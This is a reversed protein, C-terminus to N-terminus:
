DKLELAETVRAQFWAVAAEHSPSLFGRHYINAKLNRQVQESIWTDEETIRESHLIAADVGADEPEHLFIHEIQTRGVGEPKMHELMLVDRYVNVGWNPWVWSWVGGSGNAAERVECLAVEGYMQIDIRQTGEESALSPHVGERHYGDLYNEVYLKWNCAVPHRDRVIPSRYPQRGLREDLPRIVEALPTATMDLNVFVFGRWTEVRIPFLSLDAPKWGEAPGFGRAEKLKGDYGYRWDHYRCAFERDCRGKGDEVLPGARHRCVNHYGRLTGHEDRVVVLPYDAMVDAIFDGTRVLDALLGFFQWSRSFIYRRERQFAAESLYLEIPATTIAEAM